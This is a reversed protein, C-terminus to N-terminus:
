RGTNNPKEINWHIIMHKQEEETHRNCGGNEINREEDEDTTWIIEWKSIITMISHIRLVLFLHFSISILYIVLRVKIM